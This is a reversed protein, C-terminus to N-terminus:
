GFEMARGPSRLLSAPLDINRAQILWYYGGLQGTNTLEGARSAASLEHSTTLPLLTRWNWLHVFRRQALHMCPRANPPVITVAALSTPGAAACADIAVDATIDCSGDPIPAVM